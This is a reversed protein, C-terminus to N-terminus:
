EAVESDREDAWADGADIAEEETAFPGEDHECTHLYYEGTTTEEYVSYSRQEFTLTRM